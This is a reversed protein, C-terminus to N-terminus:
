AEVERLSNLKESLSYNEKIMFANRDLLERKELEFVLCTDHALKGFRVEVNIRSELGSITKELDNIKSMLLSVQTIM